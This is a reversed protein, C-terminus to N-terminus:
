QDVDIMHFWEGFVRGWGYNEVSADIEARFKVYDDDSSRIYRCAAGLVYSACMFPEGNLDDKFSMCVKEARKMMTRIKNPTEMLLPDGEVREKIQVHKVHKGHKGNKGKKPM